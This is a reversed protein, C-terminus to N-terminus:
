TETDIDLDIDDDGGTEEDNKSATVPDFNSSVKSVIRPAGHFCISTRRRSISVGTNCLRSRDKRKVIYAGCVIDGKVLYCEVIYAALWRAVRVISSPKSSFYM